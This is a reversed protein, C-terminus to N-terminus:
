KTFTRSHEPNKQYHEFLIPNAYKLSNLVHRNVLSDICAQHFLSSTLAMRKDDNSTFGHFCRLLLVYTFPTLPIDEEKMKTHMKVAIDIAYDRDEEVKTNACAGIVKMLLFYKERQGKADDHVLDLSEEEYIRCLLNYARQAALPRGCTCINALM